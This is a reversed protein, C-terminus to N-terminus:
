AAIEGEERRRLLAAREDVFDVRRGNAEAWAAIADAYGRDDADDAVIVDCRNGFREFFEMRNGHQRPPGDVLGLGFRPPLDLGGLDYWGDKIPCHLFGISGVGALGAMVKTQHLWNFDHELCYVGQSPNAAAMVITTLGSGAEIIPGRAKRAMLVALILVGEQAGYYPNNVERRAESLLAIDESGARIKDAVYRLTTGTQRRLAAGLSDTVITKATHGLRMEYVAYVKGGNARWKNCFHLDGGWRTGNNFYREFIIATKSRRDGEYWYQHSVKTLFALVHRRIRMFGAPLGEVELLGNEDPEHVGEIMRLPMKREDPRRYPYVGGVLDCDYRCLKILEKPEWSVDADIFVLDTCDTLLFEQVVRNRADDVHCNGSLLLYETEIGALELEKRSKQISFTYSADPNEYAITALMVKQGSAAPGSDHFLNSM